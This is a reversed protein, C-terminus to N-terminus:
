GMYYPKVAPKKKPFCYNACCIFISAAMAVVHGSVFIQFGWALNGQQTNDYMVGYLIAAILGVIGAVCAYIDIPSILV